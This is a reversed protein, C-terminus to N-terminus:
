CTYLRTNHTFAHTYRTGPPYVVPGAQHRIKWLLKVESRPTEKKRNWSDVLNETERERQLLFFLDRVPHFPLFHRNWCCGELLWLRKEKKSQMKVRQRDQKTYKRPKKTNHTRTIGEWLWVFLHSPGYIDSPTSRNNVNKRRRAACLRIWGRLAHLFEGRGWSIFRKKWEYTM